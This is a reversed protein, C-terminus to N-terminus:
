KWCSGANARQSAPAVFLRYRIMLVEGPIFDVADDCLLSSRPLPEMRATRATTENFRALLTLRVASGAPQPSCEHAGVPFPGIPTLIFDRRFSHANRARNRLM